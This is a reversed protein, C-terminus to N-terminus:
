DADVAASADSGTPSGAPSGTDDGAGTGGEEWRGSRHVRHFDRGWRRRAEVRGTEYQWRYIQDALDGYDLPIRAGRLLLVMERLRRGLTELDSSTGIRVFRKRIAASVDEVSTYGTGEQAEEDGTRQTPLGPGSSKEEALRRVSRGLSWGPVHMPEDRLSQQHLAWLTVALHVARDERDERAEQQRQGGAVLHRTPDEDEANRRERLETLAELHDLGWNTPSAHADRGVERRLRAVAAVAAPSDKRYGGQLRSVTRGTATRVLSPAHQKRHGAPRDTGATGTTTTM